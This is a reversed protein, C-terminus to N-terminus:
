QAEEWQEWSNETRTEASLLILCIKSWMHVCKPPTATKCNQAHDGTEKLLGTGRRCSNLDWLQCNLESRSSNYQIWSDCRFVLLLDHFAYLYWWIDLFYLSICLLDTDSVVHGSVAVYDSTITLNQQCQIFSNLLAGASISTSAPSALLKGQLKPLTFAATSMTWSHLPTCITVYHDNWSNQIPKFASDDYFNHSFLRAKQLSCWSRCCGCLWFLGWVSFPELLFHLLSQSWLQSNFAMWSIVTKGRQSLNWSKLKM